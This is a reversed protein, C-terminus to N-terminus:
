SDDSMFSNQSKMEELDKIQGRLFLKRQEQLTVQIDTLRVISRASKLEASVKACQISGMIHAEQALKESQKELIDAPWGRVHNVLDDRYHNALSPTISPGQPRLAQLSSSVGQLSSLSGSAPPSGVPVPVKTCDPTESHTPTPPGEVLPGNHNTDVILPHVHASEGSTQRTMVLVNHITQLSKNDNSEPTTPVQSLNRPLATLSIPPGPANSTTVSSPPPVMVPTSVNALPSTELRSTPTPTSPVQMPHSVLRPLATALLVPGVSNQDLNSPQLSIPQHTYSVESTPTSDGPSIDMDQMSQMNDESYKRSTRSDRNPAEGDERSSGSSWHRSGTASERAGDKGIGVSRSNSHKEHRGASRSSSSYNRDSERDRDRTRFRDRERERDIWERPKEWQSVETKCNYYYKKGSSSIHESWDGVRTVREREDRKEICNNHVPKRDRLSPNQPKVTSHLATKDDSRDHNTRYELDRRKDKPSRACDSYKDRVPKYDRNEREKDRIKQLYSNKSQYLRDRDRPSQSDPSDSRYTGNPSDRIRDYREGTSPYNKSSNYKSNPSPNSNFSFLGSGSPTPAAVPPNFQNTTGFNFGTKMNSTNSTSGFNFGGNQVPQAQSQLSTNFINTAPTSSQFPSASEVKPANFNFAPAPTPSNFNFGGPPQPTQNATPEFSFSAPKAPEVPKTAVSGFSFMPKTAEAAPTAGFTFPKIDTVGFTPAAVTSKLDGGFVSPATTAKQESGFVSPATSTKIDTGFGFAPAPTPATPEFTSKPTSFMSPSSKGFLPAQPETSIGFSTQTNRQEPQTFAFVPPQTTTTVSNGFPSPATTKGGFNFLNVTPATTTAQAQTQPPVFSFFNSSQTQPTPPVVLTQPKVMSLFPNKEQPVLQPPGIQSAIHPQKLLTNDSKPPSFVIAPAVKKVDTATVNEELNRKLSTSKPANFTFASVPPSVIIPKSATNQTSEATTSPIHAEVEKPKSFNGFTFGGAPPAFPKPPEQKDIPKLPEEIKVDKAKEIEIPKEVEPAILPEIKNPPSVDQLPKLAESTSTPPPIIPPVVSKQPMGFTFSPVNPIKDSASNSIPPVVTPTLKIEDAVTNKITPIAAFNFLSMTDRKHTPIVPKSNPKPTECAACTSKEEANRIMCVSCEWENSKKKFADGFDNSSKAGSKQTQCGGCKKFDGRNKLSCIQCKWVLPSDNLKDVLVNESKIISPGNAKQLGPKANCCAVCKSDSNSNRVLCIECEWKDGSIKFADGFGVVPKSTEPKQRKSKLSECAACKLKNSANRILCVSCEWMDISPKFKNLDIETTKKNFVDDISGKSLKNTPQIAEKRKLQLNESTFKFNMIPEPGLKEKQKFVPDSFKFDNIAIISILNEALILPNSFKYQLNDTEDLIKSAVENTKPLENCVVTILPQKSSSPPPPLSFDFKPLTTIPLSIEPLKVEEVQNESKQQRTATIKNKMKNSYKPTEEDIRLKYDNKNLVSKSTTAIQRVALTSDQLREKLKMKLLDPVTPVQLEKNIALPIKHDRVYSNTGMYKSLIGEPRSKKSCPVKKAESIPSQFEELSLLIRRATLSLSANNDISDNVPKVQIQNKVSAKTTLNRNRSSYASAGGYITRGNYFPSNLIRKTCLTRDVFNPSGFTSANFSPRRSSLSTNLQPTREKFLSRNHSATPPISNFYSKIEQTSSSDQKDKHTFRSKPTNGDFSEGDSDEDGNVISDIHNTDKPTSFQVGSPGAEPELLTSSSNQFNSGLTFDNTYYSNNPESIPIKIRKSPPQINFSDDDDDEDRHRTTATQKSEGGFWKSLSTAFLGSVKKVFSENSDSEKVLASGNNCNFTNRKDM